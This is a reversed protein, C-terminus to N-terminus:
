TKASRWDSAGDFLSLPDTPSIFVVPHGTIEMTVDIHSVLIASGGRDLKTHCISLARAARHRMCSMMLSPYYM